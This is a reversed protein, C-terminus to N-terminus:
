RVSADALAPAESTARIATPSLLYPHTGGTEILRDLDFSITVTETATAGVVLPPEVDVKLGTQMGSPVFVETSEGLACGDDPVGDLDGDKEADLALEAREVIFRVQGYEGAPVFAPAGALTVDLAGELEMVDFTVTDPGTDGPFVAIPALDDDGAPMLDIRNVTVLLCTTSPDHTEATVLAGSAGSTATLAIQVPSGPGAMTSCASLVGASLVATILLLSRRRLSHAM